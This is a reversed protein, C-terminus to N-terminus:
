VGPESTTIGLQAEEPTVTMGESTVRSLVQYGANRVITQFGEDKLDGSRGTARVCTVTQGDVGAVHELNLLVKDIADLRSDIMLFNPGLELPYHVWVTLIRPSRVDGFPNQEENEWRLIVFPGLVSPKRDLGYNVFVTTDDIGMSNLTPDNILAQYIANRSM